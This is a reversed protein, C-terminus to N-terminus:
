LQLLSIKPSFGAPQGSPELTATKTFRLWHQLLGESSAAAKSDDENGKLLWEGMNRNTVRVLVCQGLLVTTCNSSPDTKPKREPTFM